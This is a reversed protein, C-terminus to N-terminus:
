KEITPKQKPKLIKRRDANQDDAVTQIISRRSRDSNQDDAERQTKIAQNQKPTSRRNIDLKQEDAETQTKITKQRHKSQRSQSTQLRRSRDTNQDEVDTLIKVM